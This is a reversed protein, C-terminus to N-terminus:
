VHEMPLELATGTADPSKDAGALGLPMQTSGRTFGPGRSLEM